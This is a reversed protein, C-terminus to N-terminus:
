AQYQADGQLEAIEEAVITAADEDSSGTQTLELMRRPVYDYAGRIERVVTEKAQGYSGRSSLDSIRREAYKQRATNRAMEGQNLGICCIAGYLKALPLGVLNLPFVMTFFMGAVFGVLYLWVLHLRSYGTLLVVVLSVLWWLNSFITAYTVGRGERVASRIFYVGALAYFTAAALALWELWRLM